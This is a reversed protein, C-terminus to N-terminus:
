AGESRHPCLLFGLIPLCKEACPHHLQGHTREGGASSAGIWCEAIALPRIGRRSAATLLKPACCDGTGTPPRRGADHFVEPVSRVIGAVGMLRYAAQVRGTLARSLENQRRRLAIRGEEAEQVRREMAELPARLLARERRFRVSSEQSERRLEELLGAEVGSGGRRRGRDERAVAEERGLRERAEVVEQRKGELASMEAVLDVGAFVGEELAEKLANLQSLTEEEESAYAAVDVVPEVWGSVELCGGLRGSFARLAVTQGTPDEGVLVGIMKGEGPLRLQDLSLGPSGESEEFDLRGTTEIIGVLEELEELAPGGFALGHPACCVACLGHVHEEAIADPDHLRTPKM